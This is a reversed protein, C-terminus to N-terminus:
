KKEAQRRRALIVASAGAGGNAYFNRMSTKLERETLGETFETLADKIEQISYLALLEAVSVGSPLTGTLEYTMSILEVVRPDETSVKQEEPASGLRFDVVKMYESIPYRVPDGSLVKGNCWDEFDALVAATGYAEAILALRAKAEPYVGRTNKLVRAAIKPMEKMLNM